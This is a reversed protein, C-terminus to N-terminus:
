AHSRGQRCCNGVWLVGGKRWLMAWAPEETFGPSEGWLLLPRELTPGEALRVRGETPLVLGPGGGVCVLGPSGEPSNTVHGWQLLWSLYSVLM